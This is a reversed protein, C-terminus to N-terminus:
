SKNINPSEELNVAPGTFLPIRFQGVPFIYLFASHCRLWYRHESVTIDQGEFVILSHSLDAPRYLADSDSASRQNLRPDEFLYLLFFQEIDRTSFSKINELLVCIVPKFMPSGICTTDFGGSSEHQFPDREKM